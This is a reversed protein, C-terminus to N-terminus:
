DAGAMTQPDRLLAGTFRARLYFGRPVLSEIQGEHGYARTRVEGHAAKPRAQLWRGLRADLLAGKGIAVMGVIDDFDARLVAEQDPTPIWFRPRGIRMQSAEHVIPVWLVHALKQRVPSSEWEATEADALSFSAIFTSERPRGQETVPITKLEVGLGPFDPASRAGASAGLAREILQGVKGKRKRMPGAGASGFAAEVESLDRCALWGVRDELETLSRPPSAHFPPRM